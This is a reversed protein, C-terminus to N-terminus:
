WLFGYPIRVVTFAATHYECPHERKIFFFHAYARNSFHYECLSTNAIPIHHKDVGVEYDMLFIKSFFYDVFCPPHFWFPAPVPWSGNLVIECFPLDNSQIQMCTYAFLMSIHRLRNSGSNYLIPIKFLTNSRRM